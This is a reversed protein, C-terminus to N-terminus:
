PTPIRVAQIKRWGDAARWDTDSECKLTRGEYDVLDGTTDRKLVQVDPQVWITWYEKAFDLGLTQYLNRPVPQVSVSSEVTVAEAYTDVLIGRGNPTHSVWARWQVVQPTLVRMAISLLNAGPVRM